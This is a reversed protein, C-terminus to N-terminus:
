REDAIIRAKSGYLILVRDGKKFSPNPGQTLTVMDGSDTQVIYEVGEQSTIAKETAGGAIGGILAGGIAGLINARTSGGITSGAVGGALAGATKGTTNTGEVSVTRVGVVVGARTSNVKGTGGVSYTDPNINQTCGTIFLFAIISLLVKMKM